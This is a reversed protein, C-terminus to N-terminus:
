TLIDMSIAAERMPRLLRVHLRRAADRGGFRVGDKWRGGTWGKQDSVVCVWGLVVGRCM